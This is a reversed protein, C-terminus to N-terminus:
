SAGAGLWMAILEQIDALTLLYGNVREGTLWHQAADQLETTTIASGGSSELSMWEYRWDTPEVNGVTLLIYESDDYNGAFDSANVQLYYSTGNPTGIAATTTTSYTNGDICYMDKADPGGVTSLDVTVRYIDGNDIATVNLRSLQYGTAAIPNPTANPASVVPAEHDEASLDLKRPPAIPGGSGASWEITEEAWAGAVTFTIVEGDNGRVDLYNLDPEYGYKGLADAEVSGRLESGVYARVITGAPADVGNLTITGYFQNSMSPFGDASVISATGALTVALVISFLSLAKLGKAKKSQKMFVEKDL